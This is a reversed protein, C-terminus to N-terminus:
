DDDEKGKPHDDDDDDKGKGNDDDDDDENEGTACPPPDTFMPSRPSGKPVVYTAYTLAEESGENVAYTPGGSEVVAEGPGVRDATCDPGLFTMTGSKVAIVAFGPHHHWDIFDGPSFRVEQMHVETPRKTKLRIGGNNVKVREELTASVFLTATIASVLPPGAALAVVALAAGLLAARLRRSM